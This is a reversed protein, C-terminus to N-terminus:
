YRGGSHENASMKWQRFRAFVEAVREGCGCLSLFRLFPAAAVSVFGICLAGGYTENLQGSLRDRSWFLLYVNLPGWLLGFLALNVARIKWTHESVGFSSWSDVGSSEEESVQVGDTPAVAGGRRGVTVLTGYCFGGIGLPILYGWFTACIGYVVHTNADTWPGGLYCRGDKVFNSMEFPSNVVAGIVWVAVVTLYKVATRNLRLHLRKQRFFLYVHIANLTRNIVSGSLGVWVITDSYFLVCLWFGHNGELYSDPVRIIYSLALIGCAVADIVSQNIEMHQCCHPLKAYLLCALEALNTFTGIIGVIIACLRVAAQRTSDESELTAAATTEDLHMKALYNTKNLPEWHRECM